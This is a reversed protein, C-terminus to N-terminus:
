RLPTRDPLQALTPGWRLLARVDGRLRLRGAMYAAQASLRGECIAQATPEDASFTVTAAVARGDHVSVGARDVVVHYTVEGDAVTVEHQVVIAESPGADGIEITAARAQQAALWEPSLFRDM